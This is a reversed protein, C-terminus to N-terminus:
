QYGKWNETNGWLARFMWEYIISEFDVGKVIEKENEAVKSKSKRKSFGGANKDMLSGKNRKMNNIFYDVATIIPHSYLMKAWRKEGAEWDLYIPSEILLHINKALSMENTKLDRDSDRYVKGGPDTRTARGTPNHNRGIDFSGM